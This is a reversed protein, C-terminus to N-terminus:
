LVPASPPARPSSVHEKFRSRRWSLVTSQLQSVSLTAAGDPVASPLSLLKAFSSKDGLLSFGLEPSNYKAAQLTGAVGPELGDWLDPAFITHIISRQDIGSADSGAAMHSHVLPLVTVWAIIWAIILSRPRKM